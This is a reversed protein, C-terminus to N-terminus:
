LSIIKSFESPSVGKIKKFTRNFQSISDFGVEYAIQSKSRRTNKLLHCAQEIRFQHLYAVFSIGKAQKFWRCFSTKTMNVKTALAELEIQQQYNEFIFRHIIDLRENGIIQQTSNKMMPILEGKQQSLQHLLELLKFFQSTSNKTNFLTTAFHKLSTEVPTFNLGSIKHQFQNFLDKLEPIQMLREQDIQIVYAEVEEVEKSSVWQHPVNPAVWIFDGEEFTSVEDGVFRLGSGKTIYTLEIEPHYHWYATFAKQEVKFVKFSASSQETYERKAKINEKFNISNFLLSLIHM